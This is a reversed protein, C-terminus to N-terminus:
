NDVEVGQMYTKYIVAHYYHVHPGGQLAKGRRKNLTRISGNVRM